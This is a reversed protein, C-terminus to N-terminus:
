SSEKGASRRNRKGRLRGFWGLLRGPASPPPPVREELTGARIAEIAIGLRVGTFAIVDAAAMRLSHALLPGDSDAPEADPAIRMALELARDAACQRAAHDTLHQALSTLVDTLERVPQQFRGRTDSDASSVLRALTLCSAGLLDLHESSERERVVVKARWVLARRSVNTSARGVRRLEALRDRVDRLEGVAEGALEDDDRAIAEATVSLGDAISALAEKEARRLLALPEPPFLVQTFVLAIGAGTLVDVLRDLGNAKDGVAVVLIASVAAQVVVIQPSRVAHAATLAVFIGLAMSGPGAGVTLLVLEGVVLGLVVGQLLRVAQLGREGLNATLANMAAIPAFYPAPHDFGYRAVLWAATASATAQLHLWGDLAGRRGAASLRAAARHLVARARRPWPASVRRM